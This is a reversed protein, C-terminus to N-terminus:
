IGHAFTRRTRRVLSTVIMIINVFLIIGTVIRLEGSRLDALKDIDDSLIDVDVLDDVENILNLSISEFFPVLM